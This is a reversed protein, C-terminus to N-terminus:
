LITFVAFMIFYFMIIASGIGFWEKVITRKYEKKFMEERRKEVEIRTM